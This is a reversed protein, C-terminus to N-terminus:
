DIKLGFTKNVNEKVKARDMAEKNNFKACVPLQGCYQMMQRRHDGMEKETDASDEIYTCEPDGELVCSEFDRRLFEPDPLPEDPFALKKEVINWGARRYYFNSIVREVPDRVLNVWTPSALGFSDFDLFNYHRVWVTPKSFSTLTEALQQQEWPPSNYQEVTRQDVNVTYGRKNSLEVMLKILSQSGVKAVRNFLLLRQSTVSVRGSVVKIKMPLVVEKKGANKFKPIKINRICGRDGYASIQFKHSNELTGKAENYTGVVAKEFGPQIFVMEESVIEGKRFQAYVAGTSQNEDDPCFIWAWGNPVGDLYRGVFVLGENKNKIVVKGHLVGDVCPGSIEGFNNMKIKVDGKPLGAKFYGKITKMSMFANDLICFDSGSEIALRGNNRQREISMDETLFMLEGKGKFRNLDDRTGVYEHKARHRMDGCLGTKYLPIADETLEREEGEEKCFVVKNRSRQQAVWSLLQKGM